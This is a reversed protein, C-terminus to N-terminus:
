RLCKCKIHTMEYCLKEKQRQRGVIGKEGTEEWTREEKQTVDKKV